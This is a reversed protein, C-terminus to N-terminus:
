LSAIAVSYKGAVRSYFDAWIWIDLWKECYILVHYKVWNGNEVYGTMSRYISRGIALSFM